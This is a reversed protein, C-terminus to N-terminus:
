ALKKFCKLSEASVTGLPLPCIKQLTQSDDEGVFRFSNIRTWKPQILEPETDKIQKLTLHNWM